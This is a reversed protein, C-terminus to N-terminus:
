KRSAFLTSIAPNAPVHATSGREAIEHGKADIMPIALTLKM